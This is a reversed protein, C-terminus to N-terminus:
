QRVKRLHETAIQELHNIDSAVSAFNFGEALRQAAITGSACHIGISKGARHAIQRVQALTNEFETSIEPDGPFRAGMVLSLDSPGIYIGDLGTVACIDAVNELGQRTEIMAICLTDQDRDLTNPQANIASRIPGYSRVGRPPYKAAAVVREADAASNILPVIVGTAGADLAKGIEGPSNTAVRVLSVTNVSTDIAILSSIMGNYGGYGHQVDVCVYDYGVRAIREVGVVSDLMSWYGILQEGRRFREAFNTNKILQTRM